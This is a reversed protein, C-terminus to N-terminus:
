LLIQNNIVYLREKKFDILIGLVELREADKKLQTKINYWNQCEVNDEINEILEKLHYGLRNPHKKHTKLFRIIAQSVGSRLMMIPKPNYTFHLEKEILRNTVSGLKLVAYPIKEGKLGTLNSKSQKNYISSFTKDAILNGETILEKTEIKVYAQKMDEILEEYREKSYASGKSMYKRVEYEHYLVEFCRNGKEDRYSKYVKRKYLVTELLNKHDQGLKGIVVMKGYANEFSREKYQPKLTAEFVPLRNLSATSVGIDRQKKRYELLEKEKDEITESLSTTM